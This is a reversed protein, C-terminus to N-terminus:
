EYSNSYKSLFREIYDFKNNESAEGKDIYEIYLSLMDNLRKYEEDSIKKLSSDLFLSLNENYIDNTYDNYLSTIYSQHNDKTSTNRNPKSQFKNM